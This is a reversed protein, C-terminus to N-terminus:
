KILCPPVMGTTDSNFFNAKPKEIDNGTPFLAKELGGRAAIEWEAETPLRKGIWRAYDLAGYWTVGVVPHRANREHHRAEAVGEGM